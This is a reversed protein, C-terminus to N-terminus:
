EREWPEKYPIGLAQFLSEETDGAIRNGQQDLIGEGNAKLRWGRARCRQALELNHRASGTRILLLTAWTQPTAIYIDVPLGQYTFRQLKPGGFRCGLDYLKQALLGQNTPILVLDIDRVTPRQRRISGAVEIRQCLPALEQVLGQAVARAHALHFTM